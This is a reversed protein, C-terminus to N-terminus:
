NRNNWFTLFNFKFINEVLSVQKNFKLNVKIKSFFQHRAHFPGIGGGTFMPPM